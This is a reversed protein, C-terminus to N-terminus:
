KQREINLAKSTITECLSSTKAVLDDYQPYPGMFGKFDEIQHLLREMLEIEGSNLAEGDSVKEELNLIEPLQQNVFREIVVQSVGDEKKSM